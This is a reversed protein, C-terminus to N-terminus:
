GPRSIGACGRSRAQSRTQRWAQWAGTSWLAAAILAPQFLLRVARALDTDLGFADTGTVLQSINGPFVAVFFAATVWGVLERRRGSVLALGLVIEVVGSLYVIADPWPLFPPVQALFEERNVLHGVGAAALFVGLLLRTATRPMSTGSAAPSPPAM